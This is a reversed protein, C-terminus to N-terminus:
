SVVRRPPPVWWAAGVALALAALGCGLVFIRPRYLLDIRAEGAPLWGGVFPGNALVTPRHEGAVLLRWHGDQYISSALLRPEALRGRARVWAPEALSVQLSSRRPRGARWNKEMGPSPQVLARRAFDPNSDLWNVWNGGRYVVARAPIFVRPLRRPREYVWGAPHRFAPKFPLSIGPRTLIYRVGLFDYFPHGPRAFLHPPRRRLPWTAEAYPAPLSPNDIRVDNLGYVLAFNAPLVSAGLVLLRDDETHDQLFRLPPTVPYALRQPAPPLAPRHLLLLEAAVLGCFLWPITTRWRGKPRAALLVAALALTVLHIALMRFRFGALLDKPSPHATYGWTVLVALVAAAAFIPWRSDGQRREVECAALAALCLAIVLLLRHGQHIFAAGIVPLQGLLRDLGPPQAILLLCAVLVAIALNEQPFRRRSKLPVLAAFAALLTASGVFGASDNIVNGDGWYWTFDGYARPAAIPLLRSVARQKWLALTEPRNLEVWLEALPAPDLHFRVMVARETKPLYDLAPLLVPTAVAGALAMALGGRLLLRRRGSGKPRRRVRDLLFLGAFSVAYVLAEPHGALLLALTTVFLLLLDRGGGHDDCRAIAYLVPPLLVASNSLPWGLWLLVFGGLGFALGGALAAAEGLGQRRLLLFSFVLAVLVRLAATVGAAPWVPFPYAAVVLPQFVQTQPDGMLPMGAGTDANWLPWRGDMLARRVQLSWPAIQHILDGHIAISPPDAHPLQRFPFFYPLSGLPLLIGGGFLVTGLLIALMLGFVALVRWPVPDYWRRLLAALGAGLLLVYLGPLLDAATWGSV